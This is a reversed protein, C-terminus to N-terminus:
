QPNSAGPLMGGSQATEFAELSQELLTLRAPVPRPDEGLLPPFPEGEAAAAVETADVHEVAFAEGFALGAFVSGSDEVSSADVPSHLWEAVIVAPVRADTSSVQRGFRLHVSSMPEAGTAVPITATVEYDDRGHAPYFQATRDLRAALLEYREVLTAEGEAEPTNELLLAALAALHKARLHQVELAKQLEM